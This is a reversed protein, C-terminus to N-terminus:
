NNMIKDYDEIIKKIKDDIYITRNPVSLLFFDTEIPEPTNKSQSNNTIWGRKYISIKMNIYSIYQKILMNAQRHIGDINAAYFCLVQYIALLKQMENFLEKRVPALNQQYERFRRIKIATEELNKESIRKVELMEKIDNPLNANSSIVIEEPYLKNELRGILETVIYSQQELMTLQKDFNAFLSMTKREFNYMITSAYKNIKSKQFDVFPFSGSNCINKKSDRKGVIFLWLRVIPNIYYYKKRQLTVKKVRLKKKLAKKSNMLYLGKKTIKKCIYFVIIKFCHM